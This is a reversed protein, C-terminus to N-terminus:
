VRTPTRSKRGYMQGPTLIDPFLGRLERRSLYCLHCADAYGQEHDLAFQEVLAAPGGNLLPAIIPHADADYNSM